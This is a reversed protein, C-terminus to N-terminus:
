SILNKVQHVVDEASLGEANIVPIKRSTDQMGLFNKDQGSVVIASVDNLSSDELGVTQFGGSQLAQDVNTLNSEVAVKKYL